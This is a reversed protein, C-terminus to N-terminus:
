RGRFVELFADLFDGRRLIELGAIVEDDGAVVRIEAILIVVDGECVHPHAVEREDDARPKSLQFAEHELRVRAFREGARLDFGPMAIILAVAGRLRFHGGVGVAEEADSASVILAHQNPHAVVTAHEATLLIVVNVIVAVLRLRIGVGDEEGVAGEVPRALGDLVFAEAQAHVGLRIIVLHEGVLLERHNEGIGVAFFDGLLIHLRIVVAGEGAAEGRRAVTHHALHLEAHQISRVTRSVEAHLFVLPGLEADLNFRRLGRRLQVAGDRQSALGLSVGARGNIARIDAPADHALNTIGRPPAPIIPPPRM